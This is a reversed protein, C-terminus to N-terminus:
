GPGPPSYKAVLERIFKYRIVLYNKATFAPQPIKIVRDIHTNPFSCSNMFGRSTM